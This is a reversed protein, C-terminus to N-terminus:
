KLLKSPNSAAIILIWGIIFPLADLILGTKRGIWDIVSGTFLAGVLAGLTLLSAVWSWEDADRVLHDQDTANFVLQPQVPSSWGLNMGMAM